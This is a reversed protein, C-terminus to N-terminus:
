PLQSWQEKKRRIEALEVVFFLQQRDVTEFTRKLDLFLIIVNCDDDIPKMSYNILYQFAPECSHNARFGSQM